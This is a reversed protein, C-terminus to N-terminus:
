RKETEALKSKGTPLITAKDRQGTREERFAEIIM